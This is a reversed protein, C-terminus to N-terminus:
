FFKFRVRIYFIISWLSHNSDNKLLETSILSRACELACRGHLHLGELGDVKTRGDVKAIGDLKTNAGGESWDKVSIRSDRFFGFRPVMVSRTKRFFGCRLMADNTYTETSHINEPCRARHRDFFQM